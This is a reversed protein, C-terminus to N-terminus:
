KLNYSLYKLSSSCNANRTFEDQIEKFEDSKNVYNMINNQNDDTNEFVNIWVFKKPNNNNQLFELKYNVDYYNLNTILREISIQITGYNYGDLYNCNILEVSNTNSKNNFSDASFNVSNFKSIQSRCSAHKEIGEQFLLEDIKINNLANNTKFNIIFRDFNEASPFFVRLGINKNDNISEVVSSFFGELDLITTKPNKNCEIFFQNKSFNPQILSSLSKLENNDKSCSFLFIAIFLYIARKHM